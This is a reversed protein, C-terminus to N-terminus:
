EMNDLMSSDLGMVLKVLSENEDIKWKGDIKSLTIDDTKDSYSVEDLYKSFLDNMYNESDEDSMEVGSFAQGMFYGMSEALVKGFVEGFNMSNVTVNVKATDGNIEESNIKYTLKKMKKILKDTVEKSVGDEDLVEQGSEEVVAFLEKASADGKKVKDFYEGVVDSPTSAKCGVLATTVILVLIVSLQKVYKM